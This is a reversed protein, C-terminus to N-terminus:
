RRSTWSSGSSGTSGTSRPASGSSSRPRAASVRPHDARDPGERGAARGVGRAGHGPRRHLPAARPGPRPAPGRHRGPRTITMPRLMPERDHWRETAGLEGRRDGRDGGGEAIRRAPLDVEEGVPVGVPHGRGLDGLLEVQVRVDGAVVEVLEGGTAVELDAGFTRCAAGAPRRLAVPGEGVLDGEVHGDAVVVHQHLQQAPRQGLQALLPGRREGLLDADLVAPGHGAGHAVLAGADNRAASCVTASASLEWPNAAWASFSPLESRMTVSCQGKPSAATSCGTM